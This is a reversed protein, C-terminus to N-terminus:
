DVDETEEEFFCEDLGLDEEISSILSEKDFNSDFVKTLPSEIGLCKCTELAEEISNVANSVLDQNNEEYYDPDASLLIRMTDEVTAIAEVSPISKTTMIFLSYPQYFTNM